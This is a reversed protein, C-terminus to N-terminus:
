VPLNSFSNIVCRTPIVHGFFSREQMPDFGGPHGASVGGMVETPPPPEVATEARVCKLGAPEFLIQDRMPGADGSGSFCQDQSHHTGAEREGVLDQTSALVPVYLKAREFKILWDRRM